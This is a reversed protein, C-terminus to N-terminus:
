DKCTIVKGMWGNNTISYLMVILKCIMKHAPILYGKNILTQFLTDDVTPGVTINLGFRENIESFTTPETGISLAQDNMPRFFFTKGNVLSVQNLLLISNLKWRVM